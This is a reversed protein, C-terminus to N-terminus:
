CDVSFWIVSPVAMADPRSVVAAASLAREGSEVLL